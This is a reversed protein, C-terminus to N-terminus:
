IYILPKNFCFPPQTKSVENLISSLWRRSPRPIGMAALVGLPVLAPLTATIPRRAMLMAPRCSAGNIGCEASLPTRCRKQKVQEKEWTCNMHPPLGRSDRGQACREEMMDGASRPVRTPLEPLTGHRRATDYCPRPSSLCSPHLLALTDQQPAAIVAEAKVRASM